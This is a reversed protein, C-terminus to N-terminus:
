SRALVQFRAVSFVRSCRPLSARLVFAAIFRRSGIDGVGTLM